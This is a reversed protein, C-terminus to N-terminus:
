QTSTSTDTSTDTAASSADGCEYSIPSTAKRVCEDGCKMFCEECSKYVDDSIGLAAKEQDCRVDADEKSLGTGCGAAMASLFVVASVAALARLVVM